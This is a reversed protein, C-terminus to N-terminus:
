LERDIPVMSLFHVKLKQWGSRAPESLYEVNTQAERTTWVLQNKNGSKRLSVEYANDPSTLAAFRRATQQALDSSDIILGIETNLRKSRSDLNMSGIFVSTQDFVFIKAHLAYNGRRSIARSQGTGRTSGLAPRIEFLSVGDALLKSRFHMYGAHAMLDPASALSNTLIKIHAGHATDAELLRMEEATPVLYPTVVLMSSQVGRVQEEMPAFLLSGAAGGDTVRRKDPSDYVPKCRAWTLPAQGSLIDRLPEQAQLRQLYQNNSGPDAPSASPLSKEFERLAAESTHKRDLLTAPVCLTSNWFEDFVGSLEQIVPGAALLDDDGFQSGPDIQFYQDGVNRGGILAVVNDAVLLKNHMRYDLRRKSILFEAARAIRAHGRYRFANFVRIEINRNAALSLIREDGAVTDGDDVVIRVRVGRNAARLLAASVIKGSDDGRFIYYQLDLSRQARDIIEVRALLGDIGTSIMRFGSKGAHQDGTAALKALETTDAPPLAVSETKSQWALPTTACAGLALCTAILCIERQRRRRM